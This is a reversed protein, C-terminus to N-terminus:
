PLNKLIRRQHKKWNKGLGKSADVIQVKPINNSNNIVKKGNKDYYYAINLLWYKESYMEEYTYWGGIKTEGEYVHAACEEDVNEIGGNM